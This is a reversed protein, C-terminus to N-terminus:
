RLAKISEIYCEKSRTLAEDHGITMTEEYFKRSALEYVHNHYNAVTSRRGRAQISSIIIWANPRLGSLGPASASACFRGLLNSVLHYASAKIFVEPADLSPSVTDVYEDILNM